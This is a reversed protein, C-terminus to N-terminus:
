WEVKNDADLPQPAQRKRYDHKLIIQYNGGANMVKCPARYSCFTCKLWDPAPYIITSDRVMELAVLWLDRSAQQLEEQTRRVFFEKFFETSGRELLQDLVDQYQMVLAVEREDRAQMFVDDSELGKEYSIGREIYVQEVAEDHLAKAYTAYTTKLSSNIARSFSGNKLKPPVEPVRKMLFRYHVGAIPENLISQAAWSYITAQDDFQLWEEAPERAATKYERIWLTNDSKRRVIGDLRGALFVRTSPRGSDTLIPVSFPLETAVIEWDDDAEETQVWRRYHELMGFGLAAAENYRAEEEAWLAGTDREAKEREATLERMFVDEPLEGTEYFKSLGEHVAKGM